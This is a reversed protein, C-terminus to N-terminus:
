LRGKEHREMSVVFFTGKESDGPGRQFCPGTHHVRGGIDISQVQKEKLATIGIDVYRGMSSQFLNQSHTLSCM